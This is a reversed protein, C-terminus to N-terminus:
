GGCVCFNDTLATAQVTFSGPPTGPPLCIQFTGTNNPFTLTTTGAPSSVTLIFPPTGTLEVNVTRCDNACVDPNSVSLVVEPLPRWVVTRADSFDLCPDNLDVSGNLDNGAMAAFYYTVGAQLPAGFTFSPTSSVAVISGV